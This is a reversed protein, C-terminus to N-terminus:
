GKRVPVKKRGVRPSFIEKGHAFLAFAGPLSASGPEAGSAGPVGAPVPDRHAPARGHHESCRRPKPDRAAWSLRAPFFSDANHEFRLSVATQMFPQEACCSTLRAPLLFLRGPWSRCRVWPVMCSPFVNLCGFKVHSPVPPDAGQVGMGGWPCGELGATGRAWTHPSRAAGAERARLWRYADPIRPLPLM